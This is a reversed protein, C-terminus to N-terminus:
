EDAHNADMIRIIQRRLNVARRQRQGDGYIDDNLANLISGLAFGFDNSHPVYEKKYFHKTYYSTIICTVCLFLLIYNM